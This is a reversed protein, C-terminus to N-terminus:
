SQVIDATGRGKWRRLSPVKFGLFEMIRGAFFLAMEELDRPSHYFSPMCPYITAGAEAASLMNKIHIINFPAERIALVLPRKEKLFCDCARHILNRSVGQAVQALTGMTCPLVVMARWLSSGSAPPAWLEDESYVAQAIGIMRELGGPGIEFRTVEEGTKSFILHVEQGLEQLLEMFKLAYVSGSAGTVGLLVPANHNNLGSDHGSRM